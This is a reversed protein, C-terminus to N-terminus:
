TNRIVTWMEQRELLLNIGSATSVSLYTDVCRSQLKIVVCHLSIWHLSSHFFRIIDSVECDPQLRSMLLLKFLYGGIM